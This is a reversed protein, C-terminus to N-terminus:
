RMLDSYGEIDTVVISMLGHRPQGQVRKRMNLLAQVVLPRGQRREPLVCLFDFDPLDSLSLVVSCPTSPPPMSLLAQAVHPLGQRLARMSCLPCVSPLSVCFSAGAIHLLCTLM